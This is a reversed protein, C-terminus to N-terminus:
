SFLFSPYIENTFFLFIMFVSFFPINRKYLLPIDHFCFLLTYKMELSSSYSSFLVPPYIKNRFFLFIIVVSCYPVNRELSCFFDKFYSPPYMEIKCLRMLFLIHLMICGSNVHPFLVNKEKTFFNFYLTVVAKHTVSPQTPREFM